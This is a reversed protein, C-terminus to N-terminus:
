FNQSGSFSGYMSTGDSVFTFIDVAGATGTLVPASGGPWKYGSSWALTKPSAPQTVRMIYVGGSAQNTADSITANHGLTLTAVQATNVNWAITTASTLAVDDFYQSATFANQVTLSAGSGGATLDTRAVDGSIYYLKGDAETFLKGVGAVASPTTQESSIAIVGAVDMAAGSTISATNAGIADGTTTINGTMAATAGSISGAFTSAITGSVTTVAAATTFTVGGSTGDYLKIQAGSSQVEVM